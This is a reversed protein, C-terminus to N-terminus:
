VALVNSMSKDGLEQESCHVYLKLVFFIPVLDYPSSFATVYGITLMM